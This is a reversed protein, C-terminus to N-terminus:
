IPKIPKGNSDVEFEQFYRDISFIEKKVVGYPKKHQQCYFVEREKWGSGLILVGKAKSKHIAVGCEECFVIEGLVDRSFEMIMQKTKLFDFM